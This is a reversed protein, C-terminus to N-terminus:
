IILVIVIMCMDFNIWHVISYQIFQVNTYQQNNITVKLSCNDNHYISQWSKVVYLQWTNKKEKRNAKTTMENIQKFYKANLRDNLKMFFFNAFLRGMYEYFRYHQIPLNLMKWCFWRLIISPMSINAVFRFSVFFVCVCVCSLIAIFKIFVNSYTSLGLLLMLLLITKMSM